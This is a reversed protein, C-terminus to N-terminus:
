RHNDHSANTGRQVHMGPVRMHCPRGMARRQVTTASAPLGPPTLDPAQIDGVDAYGCCVCPSLRICFDDPRALNEMKPHTWMLRIDHV